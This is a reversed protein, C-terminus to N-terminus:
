NFIFYCSNFTLSNVDISDFSYIFNDGGKLNKMMTDDKVLFGFKFTVHEQYCYSKHINCFIIPAGMVKMDNIINYIHRESLKLKESLDKPTGTAKRQILYDLREILRIKQILDM